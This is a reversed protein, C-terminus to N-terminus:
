VEKKEKDNIRTKGRMIGRYVLWAGLLIFAAPWFYVGHLWSFDLLGLRAGLWIVGIIILVMGIQKKFAHHRHHSWPRCCMQGVNKYTEQSVSM